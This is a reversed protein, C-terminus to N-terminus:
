RSVGLLVFGLGLVVDCGTASLQSSSAEESEDEDDDEHREDEGDAALLVSESSEVSVSVPDVVDAM